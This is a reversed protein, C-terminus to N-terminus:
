CAHPTDTNSTFPYAIDAAVAGAPAGTLDYRVAGAKLRSRYVKNVTYCRLAQGLEAETVAGDLAALLDHHIGIKLPRRKAEHMAFTKPYLNCLLDVAAQVGTNHRRKTPSIPDTM